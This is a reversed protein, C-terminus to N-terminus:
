CNAILVVFWVAAVFMLKCSAEAKRRERTLFRPTRRRAIGTRDDWIV